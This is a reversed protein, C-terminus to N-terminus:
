GLGMRRRGNRLHFILHLCRVGANSLRILTRRPLPDLYVLDVLEDRVHAGMVGLNDGYYLQNVVVVGFGKADACLRRCNTLPTLAPMM